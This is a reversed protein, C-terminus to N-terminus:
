YLYQVHCGSLIYYTDCVIQIDIVPHLYYGIVTYRVPYRVADSKLLFRYKYLASERLVALPSIERGPPLRIPM